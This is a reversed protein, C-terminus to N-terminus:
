FGERLATFIAEMNEPCYEIERSFMRFLDDRDKKSYGRDLYLKGALFLLLELSTEVFRARVLVEQDYLAEMFYRFTLYVAVHEWEYLRGEDSLIAGIGEKCIRERDRDAENLLRRWRGDLCELESFFGVLEHAWAAAGAPDEEWVTFLSYEGALEEESLDEEGDLLQQLGAMSSVCANLREGIPSRRDELGEIVDARINLLTILDESLENEEGKQIMEFQLPSSDMFLLREAEECCLGLGKETYNGFWNYFRPHETCIDCLAAEGLEKYIDCLDEKDLFPCRRGKTLGFYYEGQDCRIEKKLREGFPGTVKRYRQLAEEDLVIEWGACCTDTCASATCAFEKMYLPQCLIM